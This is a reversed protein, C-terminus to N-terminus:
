YLTKDVKNRWAEFPARAGEPALRAAPVSREAGACLAHRIRADDFGAEAADQEGAAYWLRDLHAWHIAALCMACPECSAYLECGALDHTGLTRCAERIAVVEAHASPDHDLTVRNQGRGIVVGDRVVVAGFPGGGAAVSELALRVAEAMWEDRM